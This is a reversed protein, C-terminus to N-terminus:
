RSGTAGRSEGSAETAQGKRTMRRVAVLVATAIVIGYLPWFIPQLLIHSTEFKVVVTTDSDLTITSVQQSQGLLTISKRVYLFGLQGDVREDASVSVVAGRDFTIVLPKEPTLLDQYQIGNIFVKVESAPPLGAVVITLTVRDDALPEAALVSSVTVTLMLLCPLLSGLTRLAM